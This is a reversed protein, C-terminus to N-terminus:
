RELRLLFEVQGNGEVQAPGGSPDNIGYDSWTIPISGQVEIRGDPLLQANVQFTVSNTTGHATLDGTATATIPTGVTPISDLEIPETLAFDATPFESTNMIRGRFQNDRLSESSEISALDVTFAGKEVTTGSIDISGTVQSTRGTADSSQGFLVEKARYGAESESGISWTGDLATADASTTSTPATTETTSGSGTVDTLQFPDEADEKIFNFYVFPGAVVLVGLIGGGILVWKLWPRSRM